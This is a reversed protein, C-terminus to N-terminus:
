GKRQKLEEVFKLWDDEDADLDRATRLAAAVYDRKMIYDPLDPAVSNRQKGALDFMVAKEEETLSLIEAIKDLKQIEPPNRRDKEIDTLYPATIGILEAMKRLTIENELRKKQLFEGFSEYQAKM